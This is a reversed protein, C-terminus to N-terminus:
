FRSTSPHLLYFLGTLLATLAAFIVGCLIAGWLLSLGVSLFHSAPNGSVREWKAAM